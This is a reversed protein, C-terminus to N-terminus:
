DPADNATAHDSDDANCAMCLGFLDDTELAHVALLNDLLIEDVVDSELTVEVVSQLVFGVDHWKALEDHSLLLDDHHKGVDTSSIQVPEHSLLLLGFAM